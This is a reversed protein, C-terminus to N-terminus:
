LRVVEQLITDRLEKRLGSEPVVDVPRQLKEELFLSLAAMDFLNAKPLFEVLVDIDSTAREELRVFSGFVGRLETKFRTKVESKLQTLLQIIKSIEPSM